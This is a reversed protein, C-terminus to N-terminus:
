RYAGGAVRDGAAHHWRVAVGVRQIRDVARQLAGPYLVAGAAHIADFQHLVGAGPGAADPGPLDDLRQRQRGAAPVAGGAGAARHVCRHDDPSPGAADRHHDAAPGQERCLGHHRQPLLGM